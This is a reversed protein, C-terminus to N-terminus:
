SKIQNIPMQNLPTPSWQWLRQIAEYLQFLHPHRASSLPCSLAWNTSVFCSDIFVFKPPSCGYDVVEKQVVSNLIMQQQKHQIGDACKYQVITKHLQNTQWIQLDTPWQHPSQSIVFHCTTQFKRLSLNMHLLSSANAPFTTSILYQPFNFVDSM